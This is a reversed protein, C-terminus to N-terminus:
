LTVINSNSHRIHKICKNGYEQYIFTALKDKGTSLQNRKTVISVTMADSFWPTLDDSYNLNKRHLTALNKLHKLISCPALACRMVSFFHGNVGETNTRCDVYTTRNTMMGDPGSAQVDWGQNGCRTNSRQMSTTRVRPTGCSTMSRTTTTDIANTSQDGEGM